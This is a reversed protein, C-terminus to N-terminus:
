MLDDGAFRRGRKKKGEIAFCQDAFCLNRNEAQDTESPDTEGLTSRM